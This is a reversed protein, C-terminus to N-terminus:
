LRVCIWTEPINRENEKSKCLIQISFKASVTRKNPRFVSSIFPVQHTLPFRLFSSINWSVITLLARTWEHERDWMKTSSQTTWSNVFNWPLDFYNTWLPDICEYFRLLLAEKQHLYIATKMEISSIECIVNARNDTLKCVTSVTSEYIKEGEWEARSPRGIINNRNM